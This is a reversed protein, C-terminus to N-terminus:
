RPTLRHSLVFGAALSRASVQFDASTNSGPSCRESLVAPSSHWSGIQSALSGITLVSRGSANPDYEAIHSRNTERYEGRSVVRVGTLLLKFRTALPSSSLSRTESRTRLM